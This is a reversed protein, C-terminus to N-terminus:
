LGQALAGIRYTSGVAEGLSVAADARILAKHRQKADVLL